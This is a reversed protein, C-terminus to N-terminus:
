VSFQGMVAFRDPHKRAAILALDNRDGECSPPALVARDVGANDMRVLLADATLPVPGHERGLGDAPWPREKTHNAWVHVQDDVIKM